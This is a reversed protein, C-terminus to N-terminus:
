WGQSSRGTHESSSALDSNESGWRKNFCDAPRFPKILSAKIHRMLLELLPARWWGPIVTPACATLIAKLNYKVARYFKVASMEKLVKQYSHKFYPFHPTYRVRQCPSIMCVRHTTFLKQGWRGETRIEMQVAIWRRLTKVQFKFYTINIYYKERVQFKVTNM